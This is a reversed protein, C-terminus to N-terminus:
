LDGDPDEDVTVARGFVRAEAAWVVTETEDVLFKPYGIHNNMTRYTGATDTM